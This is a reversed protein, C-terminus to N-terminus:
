ARLFINKLKQFFTPNRLSDLLTRSHKSLRQMKFYIKRPNSNRPSHIHNQLSELFDHFMGPIVPTKSSQLLNKWSQFRHFAWISPKLSALFTNSNKSFIYSIKFEWTFDQFAQFTKSNQLSSKWLQIKQSRTYPKTVEQSLWPIVPFNKFKSTSKVQLKQSFTPSQLRELFCHFIGPIVPAKSNQLLNELLPSGPFVYPEWVMSFLGQINYYVKWSQFEQFFCQIKKPDRSCDQYEM